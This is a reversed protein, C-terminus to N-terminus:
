LWDQLKDPDAVIRIVTETFMVETIVNSAFIAIIHVSLGKHSLNNMIIILIKRNSFLKQILPKGRTKLVKGKQYFPCFASSDDATANKIMYM